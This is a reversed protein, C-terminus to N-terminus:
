ELLGAAGPRRRQSGLAFGWGGDVKALVAFRIATTTERNVRGLGGKLGSDKTGLMDYSKGKVQRLLSGIVGTYTLDNMEKLQRLDQYVKNDVSVSPM